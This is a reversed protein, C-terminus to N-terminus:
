ISDEDERLNAYDIKKPTNPIAEHINRAVDIPEIFEDEPPGPKEIPIDLVKRGITIYGTHPIIESEPMTDNADINIVRKILEYTKIDYYTQDVLKLHAKKMQEIYRSFVCMVGSYKLLPDLLQTLIDTQNTELLITDFQNVNQDQLEIQFQALFNVRESEEEPIEQPNLTYIPTNEGVFRSFIKKLQDSNNSVILLTTEPRIGGYILAFGINEPAFLQQYENPPLPADNISAFTLYGTHGVMRTDPRTANPKVQLTRKMLELNIISFFGKEQLVRNVKKVQEITPSFSCIRGSSKLKGMVNPIALWPTAMDLMIFDASPADLEDTNFDAKQITCLDLVGMMSLNQTSQKIAIDRVDHTYIHGNPRVYMAMISTVTGSGVGAEIINEGPYVGGFTLILGIDEPYIIQSERKMAMIMDSPLPKLLALLRHSPTLEVTTGYIKGIIDNFHFFGKDSHFDKTSDVQRL